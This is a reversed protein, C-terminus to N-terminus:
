GNSEAPPAPPTSEMSNLFGLVALGIGVVVTFITFADKSLLPEFQTMVAQVASFLILLIGTITTKNSWLFGGTAAKLKGLVTVALGIVLTIVAYGMPSLSDQLSPLSAQAAGFAILLAGFIKTKHNM